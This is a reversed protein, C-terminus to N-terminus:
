FFLQLAKWPRHGYSVHAIRSRAATSQVIYLGKSEAVMRSVESQRVVAVYNIRFLQPMIKFLVAAQEM